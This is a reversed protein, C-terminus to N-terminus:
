ATVKLVHTLSFIIMLAGLAIRYWGFPKFSHKKVFRMMARIAFLSVFFAVVMGVLLVTLEMASFGFGYSKFYKFIEWVSAGLMTPIALFFSFEAAAPRGCGLLSAGLITSGSRSTGPILSLCQFLGIKFSTKRDIEDPTRFRPRHHM